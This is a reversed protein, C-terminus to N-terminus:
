KVLESMVHAALLGNMYIYEAVETFGARLRRAKLTRVM